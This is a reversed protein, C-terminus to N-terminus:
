REAETLGLQLLGQMWEISIRIYVEEEGPKRSTVGNGTSDKWGPLRSTEETYGSYLYFRIKGAADTIYKRIGKINDAKDWENVSRPHLKYTKMGTTGVPALEEINGNLLTDWWGFQREDDLMSTALILIPRLLKWIFPDEAQININLERM